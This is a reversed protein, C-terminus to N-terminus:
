TKKEEFRVYCVRKTTESIILEKCVFNKQLTLKGEEDETLSYNQILSQYVGEEKKELNSYLQNGVKLDIQVYNTSEHYGKEEELENQQNSQKAFNSLTIIDHISVNIIEGDLVGEYKTFNSNFEAIQKQELEEIATQSFNSFTNFLTVAISVIMIGVIISAAMILAKSANEM